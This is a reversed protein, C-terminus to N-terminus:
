RRDPSVIVPASGAWGAQVAPPQATLMAQPSQLAPLKPDVALGISADWQRARMFYLFLFTNLLASIILGGVLALVVLASSTDSTLGGKQYAFAGYLFLFDYLGHVIAMIGLATIPKLLTQKQIKAKAFYYGVIGASAAHFFFLIVLRLIGLMESAGLRNRYLFVYVLNEILGFTLGAIGFYIVGDTHENFYSKGRTFLALPVSKACEEIIGVGLSVLALSALTIAPGNTKPLFLEAWAAAASALVGFGVAALLAGKPEKAGGDKKLFYWVLLGSSAVFLFVSILTLM